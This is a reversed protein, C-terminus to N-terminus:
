IPTTAVRHCKCWRQTKPPGAKQKMKSLGERGINKDLIAQHLDAKLSLPSYHHWLYSSLTSLTLKGSGARPPASPKRIPLPGRRREDGSMPPSIQWQSYLREKAYRTSQIIIIHKRSSKLRHVFRIRATTDFVQKLTQSWLPSQPAHETSGWSRSDERPCSAPHKFKFLEPSTCTPEM